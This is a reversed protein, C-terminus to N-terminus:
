AEVMPIATPMVTTETQLPAFSVPVPPWVLGCFKNPEQNLSSDCKKACKLHCSNSYVQGNSGCVPFYIDPCICGGPNCPSDTPLECSDPCKESLEYEESSSSSSSSSDSSDCGELIVKIIILKDFKCKKRGHGIVVDVTMGLVVFVWFLKLNKM